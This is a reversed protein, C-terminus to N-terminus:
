NLILRKLNLKIEPIVALIGSDENLKNIDELEEM